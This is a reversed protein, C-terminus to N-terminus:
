RKGHSGKLKMLFSDKLDVGQKEIVRYIHPPYANSKLKSDFADRDSKTMNAWNLARILVLTEQAEIVDIAAWLKKKRRASMKQLGAPTLGSYFRM